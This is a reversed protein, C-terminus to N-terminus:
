SIAKEVIRRFEDTLQLYDAIDSIRKLQPLIQRVEKLLARKALSPDEHLVRIDIFGDERSDPDLVYAPVKVTKTSM